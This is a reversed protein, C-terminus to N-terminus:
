SVQNLVRPLMYEALFREDTVLRYAIAFDRANFEKEPVYGIFYGAMAVVYSRADGTRPVDEYTIRVVDGIDEVTYLDDDEALNGFESEGSGRVASLMRAETVRVEEDPSYDVAVSDVLFTGIATRLRVRLESDSTSIPILVESWRAGGFHYSYQTVWEKGDWVQVQMKGYSEVFSSLGEFLGIIEQLHNRGILRFLEDWAFSILGSERARILLKAKMVDDPKAFELTIEEHLDNLNVDALDTIWYNEDPSSVIDLCDQGRKDTCSDPKQRTMITHIEGSQDPMVEVGDPHDIALIKVYNTYSTEPLEERLEITLKGNVPKLNDLREYSSLEWVPLAAIAFAEHDFSFKEGDYSYIFPCSPDPPPPCDNDGGSCDNDWDDDCIENYWGHEQMTNFIEVPTWVGEDGEGKHCIFECNKGEPCVELGILEFVVRTYLNLFGYREEGSQVSTNWSVSDMRLKVTKCQYQVEKTCPIRIDVNVFEVEADKQWEMWEYGEDDFDRCIKYDNNRVGPNTGGDSDWKIWWYTDEGCPDECQDAIEGDIYFRDIEGECDNNYGDNCIEEGPTYAADPMHELCGTCSMYREIDDNLAYDICIMDSETLSGDGDVDWCEQEVVDQGMKEKLMFSILVIDDSVHIERDGDLDGPIGTCSGIGGLLYIEFCEDPIEGPPIWPDDYRWGVFEELCDVDAQTIVGDGDFDAINNIRPINPDMGAVQVEKIREMILVDNNSIIGSDGEEQYLDGKITVTAPIDFCYGGRMPPNCGGTEEVWYGGGLDGMWTGSVINQLCTLDDETVYGDLDIDACAEFEGQIDESDMEPFYQNAIELDFEDVVCNGDFDGKSLPSCFITGVPPLGWGAEICDVTERETFARDVRYDHVCKRVQSRTECIRNNELPCRYAMQPNTPDIVYIRDSDLTGPQGGISYYMDYIGEESPAKVSVFYVDYGGDWVFYYNTEDLRIRLGELGGLIEDGFYLGAYIEVGEEDPKLIMKHPYKQFSIASSKSDSVFNSSFTCDYVYNDVEVEVYIEAEYEGAFPVNAQTEYTDGSTHTLTSTPIEVASSDLFTYSVENDRLNEITSDGFILEYKLLIPPERDIQRLSRLNLGSPCAMFSVVHIGKDEVTELNCYGLHEAELYVTYDGPEDPATCTVEWYGSVGDEEIFEIGCENQGITAILNVDDRGLSFSPTPYTIREISLQFEEEVRVETPNTIQFGWVGNAPPEPLECTRVRIDIAEHQDRETFVYDESRTNIYPEPTALAWAYVLENIPIDIEETYEGEGMALSGQEGSGDITENESNYLFITCDSTLVEDENGLVRVKVHTIPGCFTTITVEETLTPEITRRRSRPADACGEPQNTLVAYVNRGATLNFILCGDVGDDLNMLDLLEDSGTYVEITGETIPAENEDVVCVELLGWAFEGDDDPEEYIMLVGNSNIIITGDPLTISSGPPLTMTSGDPLEVLISGDLNPTIFSGPPLDQTTGDPLVAEGGDVLEMSDPDPAPEPDNIPELYLVKSEQRNKQLYVSAEADYYGDKKAYLRYWERAELDNFVIRGSVIETRLKTIPIINSGVKEALSVELEVDDLERNSSKDKITVTLHGYDPGGGAFFDPPLTITMTNQEGPIVIKTPSAISRGTNLSTVIISVKDATIKDFVFEKNAGEQKGLSNGQRDHLEVSIASPVDGVIVVKVTAYEPPIVCDAPCSDQEDPDCIGDGCFPGDGPPVEGDGTAPYFFMLFVLVVVLAIIIPFLVAPINNKDFFSALPIGKGEFWDLIGWCKNNVSGWIGGLSGM